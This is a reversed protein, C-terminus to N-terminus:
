DCALQWLHYSVRAVVEERTLLDVSTLYSGLFDESASSFESGRSPKKRVTALPAVSEGGGQARASRSRTFQQAYQQVGPPARRQRYISWLRFQESYLLM